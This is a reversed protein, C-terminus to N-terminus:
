KNYVCGLPAPQLLKYAAALGQIAAELEMDNNTTGASFGSGETVKVGDKVIAYAWGGPKDKTTASGDTYVKFDM